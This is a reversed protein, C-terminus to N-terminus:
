DEDGYDWTRVNGPELRIVVGPSTYGAVMRQGREEGYYRTATRGLVAYFASPDQDVTASGRIELGRYPEDTSSVVITARPDRLLHRVKGNTVSDAWVNFGGARWEFWVPSLLITDDARRTALVAILPQDLLDAMDDPGLDTRM